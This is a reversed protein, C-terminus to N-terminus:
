SGEKKPTEKTTKHTKNGKYTKSGKHTKSAKIWEAKNETKATAHRASDDKKPTDQGAMVGGSVQIIAGAGLVIMAGKLLTRRGSRKKEQPMDESPEQTRGSM